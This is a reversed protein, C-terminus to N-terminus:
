SEYSVRPDVVAYLVDVVLNVLTFQVALLLLAGQIVPYDRFGISQVLLWGLGPYAFVTETVVAGALLGGFQLGIVTIAPVLANKVAHRVVVTANALGKARATRIYDMGMVELMSSRMVRAVIAAGQFGLSVAPLVLHDPGGIGTTPLWGLQVAFVQMLMLGLWFSPTCVGVMAGMMSFHDFISNRRLGAFTGAGLGIVLMVVMAALTLQLTAPVTRELEHTVPSHTQASIGLDGVFVRELWSAYQVPLPRDLGLSARVLAVDELTADPGAMLRAPDGPVLHVILFVVISAGLLTPIIYVLRRLIYRGM